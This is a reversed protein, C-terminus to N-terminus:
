LVPEYTNGPQWDLTVSVGVVKESDDDTEIIGDNGIYVPIIKLEGARQSEHISLVSRTFTNAGARTGDSGPTPVYVQFEWLSEKGSEDTFPEETEIVTRTESQERSPFTVVCYGVKGGGNLALPTSRVIPSQKPFVFTSDCINFGTAFGTAFVQIGDVSHGRPDIVLCAACNAMYLRVKFNQDVGELVEMPLRATFLGTDHSDITDRVVQRLKSPHCHEDDALGVLDNNVINATALHMYNHMPLNLTYSAQNADMIHRDHQLRVSDGKTDYFSLDVDHAYDSFIGKLHERLTDALQIDIDTSLQTEIETTMNTVLRLEYNVEAQVGCDSQDEDIISCSTFLSIPLLVRLCLTAAKDYLYGKILRWKMKQNCSM